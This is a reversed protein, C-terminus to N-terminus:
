RAMAAEAFLAVDSIWSEMMEVPDDVPYDDVRKHHKPCLCMVNSWHNLMYKSYGPDYRPGGPSVARVHALEGWFM